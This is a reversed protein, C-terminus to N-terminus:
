EEKLKRDVSVFRGTVKEIMECKKTALGDYRSAVDAIRAAVAENDVENLWKTFAGMPLKMKEEIEKDTMAVVANDSTVNLYDYVSQDNCTFEGTRLWKAMCDAEFMLDEESVSVPKGPAVNVGIGNFRHFGINYGTTNRLIYMKDAM